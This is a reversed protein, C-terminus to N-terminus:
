VTKEKAIITMVGKEFLFSEGFLIEKGYDFLILVRGNSREKVTGLGYSIHKVRSGVQLGYDKKITKKASKKPVAIPTTDKERKKRKKKRHYNPYPGEKVAHKAWGDPYKRSM